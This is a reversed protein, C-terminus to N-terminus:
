SSGPVSRGDGSAELVLRAPGRRGGSSEVAVAALWRASRAGIQRTSSSGSCAIQQASLAAGPRERQREVVEVKVDDFWADGKGKVVLAVDARVADPAIDFIGTSSNWSDV